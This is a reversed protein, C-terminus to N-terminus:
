PLRTLLELAHDIKICIGLTESYIRTAIGVVEGKENYVPGGSNGPIISATVHITDEIKRVTGLSPSTEVRFQEFGRQGRPFGLAMVSDLKRLTKAEKLNATRVPSFSDGLLKLVVLDQNDLAHTKYHFDVEGIRQTKNVLSDAAVIAIELNHSLSTNYSSSYLPTGDANMCIAGTRWAFLELTEPLIRVDGLAEMAMLESDFKWPHIVHKNTILHGEKTLV